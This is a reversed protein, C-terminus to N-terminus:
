IEDLYQCKVLRHNSYLWHNNNLSLPYNFSFYVPPVTQFLSFCITSDAPLNNELSPYSETVIRAIAFSAPHEWVVM